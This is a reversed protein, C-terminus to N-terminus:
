STVDAVTMQMVRVAEEVQLRLKLDVHGGGLWFQGSPLGAIGDSLIMPLDLKLPTVANHGFGTMVQCAAGELLRMNYQKKGLAPLGRAAEIAQVAKILKEKHLKAVYQVVVLVSRVRGEEDSELKTNEMVVSKCLEEVSNAGLRDRRWELTQEYYPPQEDVAVLSASLGLESAVVQMRAKVQDATEGSADAAAVEQSVDAESVHGGGSVLHPAPKGACTLAASAKKLEIEPMGVLSLGLKQLVEVSEAM